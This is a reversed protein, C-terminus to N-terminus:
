IRYEYVIEANKGSHLRWIKGDFSPVFGRYWLDICSQFPNTEEAHNVNMPFLSSIYAWVSARVSAGVSGWVSAGVSDWVSARVSARVSDWVSASVSAWVSAWKKLNNKDNQNLKKSKIKFPNIPYLAECLKYGCNKEAKLALKMIESKNMKQEIRFYEYRQKFENIIISKGWVKVQWIHRNTNWAYLLGEIPVAYFGNSCENNIDADFNKCHYDKGKTFRFYQYPSILGKDLVKYLTKANM